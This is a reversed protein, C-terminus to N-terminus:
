VVNVRFFEEVGERPEWGDFMAPADYDGDDQRGSVSGAVVWGPASRTVVEYLHEWDNLKRGLQREVRSRREPAHPETLHLGDLTSSLCVAHAPKFWIEIRPQDQDGRMSRLLLGEHGAGWNVIEFSRDSFFIPM